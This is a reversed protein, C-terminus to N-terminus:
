YRVATALGPAEPALIRPLHTPLDAFAVEETILADLRDDGLLSLAKELRRRHTWEARHSPAVHGVQSSILQLRRSHFAGGLSVPITGDGYWSMEIIRAEFGTAAIATSLGAPTASTHFVVDANGPVADPLAFAAGLAEAIPRREPVVDVITVTAGPVGTALFSVLLGVIGAGVVVIRGGAPPEADWLANLATEMNAALTARRPPVGDPVPVVSTAPAIFRDQHPHLAFVTRGRLDAPGDEVHGVTSYGYKVPFPFAGDQMPARMTSAESAPVRGEFVLRETGRSIGSWLTRVLVDGPTWPPLPCPRVEARNRGAYWLARAATDADM